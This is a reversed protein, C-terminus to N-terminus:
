LSRQFHEVERKVEMIAETGKVKEALGSALPHGKGIRGIGKNRGLKGNGKGKFPLKKGDEECLSLRKSRIDKTIGSASVSDMKSAANSRARTTKGHNRNRGKKHRNDHHLGIGHFTKGRVAAMKKFVMTRFKQLGWVERAWGEDTGTIEKRRRWYRVKIEQKLTKNLLWDETVSKV